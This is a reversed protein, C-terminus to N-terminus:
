VDGGLLPDFGTAPETVQNVAADLAELARCLQAFQDLLAAREAAVLPFSELAALRVAPSPFPGAM